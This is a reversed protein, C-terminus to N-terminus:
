KTEEKEFDKTNFNMHTIDIKITDNSSNLDIKQDKASEFFSSSDDDILSENGIHNM